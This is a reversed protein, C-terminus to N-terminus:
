RRKEVLTHALSIADLRVGVCVRDDTRGIPTPREAIREAARARQPTLDHGDIAVALHGNTRGFRPPRSALDRPRSNPQDAASEDLVEAELHVPRRQTERRRTVLGADELV